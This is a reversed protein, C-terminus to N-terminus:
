IILPYLVEFQALLEEAERCADHLELIPAAGRRHTIAAVFEIIAQHPIRLRRAVLVARRSGPKPLPLIGPENTSSM